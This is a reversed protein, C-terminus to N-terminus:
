DFNIILYFLINVKPAWNLSRRRMLRLASSWETKLRRVEPILEGDAKTIIILDVLEMIGKKMGLNFSYILSIDQKIKVKYNM